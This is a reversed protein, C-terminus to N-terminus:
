PRGIASYVSRARQATKVGSAFPRDVLRMQSLHPACELAETDLPADPSSAQRLPASADIVEYVEEAGRQSEGM